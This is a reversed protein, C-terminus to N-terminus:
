GIVPFGGQRNSLNSAALLGKHCRSRLWRPEKAAASMGGCISRLRAFVVTGGRVCGSQLRTPAGAAVGACVSRTGLLLLLLPMLSGNEGGVKHGLNGDLRASFICAAGLFSSAASLSRGSRDTLSCVTAAFLSATSCMNNDSAASLSKVAACDTLSCVTAAFTSATRCIAASEMAAAACPRARWPRVTLSCASPTLGGHAPTMGGHLQPPLSGSTAVETTNKAAKSELHSPSLKALLM